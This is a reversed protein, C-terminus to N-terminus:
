SGDGVVLVGAVLVVNFVPGCGHCRVVNFVPGCGRCRVVNFVPVVVVVIDLNRLFDVTLVLFM